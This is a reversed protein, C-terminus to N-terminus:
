KEKEHYASILRREMEDWSYEDNYLKKMRFSMQPWRSKKETLEMLGKKIGEKSFDITAGIDHEEVIESMGTNKAMIVPKGLMLSEYFKNPAAYYHNKVAPDYIATLIDSESEVELVKQYPVTGYFVINGNKESSEKVYEELVGFGGIHLEYEKNESVVEIMEKILRSASLIGFYAIRVPENDKCDRENEHLVTKPPCNHIVILKKPNSGAIQERRQETCIIDLDAGNIIKRDLAIVPRRMFSPISFADAYYDFIDYVFRTKRHNISHFATFATDFDCAHVVDFQHKRLFKRIEAQYRALYKLNKMGSGFSAKIGVRYAVVDKLSDNLPERRLPYDDNRDWGLVSVDFGNNHLSAVEKEVRSDPKVPNARIFLIKM